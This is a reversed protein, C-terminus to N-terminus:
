VYLSARAREHEPLRAAREMQPPWALQGKTCLYMSRQELKCQMQYAHM